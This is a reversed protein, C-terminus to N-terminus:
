SVVTSEWGTARLHSTGRGGKSSLVGWEGCEGVDGGFDDVAGEGDSLGRGCVEWGRGLLKKERSEDGPSIVTRRRPETGSIEGRLGGDNRSSRTGRVSLRDRKKRGLDIDVSEIEVKIDLEASECVGECEVCESRFGSAGEANSSDPLFVFFM